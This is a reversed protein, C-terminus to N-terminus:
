KLRGPGRTTSPTPMSASIKSGSPKTSVDGGSLQVGSTSQNPRSPFAADSNTRGTPASKSIAPREWEMKLILETPRALIRM